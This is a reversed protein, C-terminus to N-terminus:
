KIEILNETIRLTTKNIDNRSITIESIFKRLEIKEVISLQNIYNLQDELTLKKNPALENWITLMGTLEQASINDSVIFNGRMAAEIVVKDVSDPTCSVLIESNNFIELVEDYKRSGRLDLNVGYTFSLNVLSTTYSKDLNSRGILILEKHIKSKAIASIAKEINKIRAVRGAMLIGKRAQFSPQIKPPFIGHGVPIVKKMKIPFSSSTPAFIKNVLVAAFILHMPVKSHSYWLGQPIKRLKLILGILAAPKSSMHYFVASNNNIKFSLYLLKSVALVRNRFNGGGLNTVSVNRPVEYRGIHTAYVQVQNFQTAFSNVWANAAAIVESDLNLELSFIYLTKSRNM